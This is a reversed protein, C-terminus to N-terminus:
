ALRWVPFGLGDGPLRLADSTVDLSAGGDLNEADDGPRSCTACAPQPPAM